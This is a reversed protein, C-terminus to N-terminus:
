AQAGGREWCDAYREGTRRWVRERGDRSDVCFRSEDSFAVENWQAVTWRQHQSAILDFDFDAKNDIEECIGSM